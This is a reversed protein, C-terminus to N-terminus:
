IVELICACAAWAHVSAAQITQLLWPVAGRSVGPSELLSLDAESQGQPCPQTDPSAPKFSQTPDRASAALLAAGQRGAGEANCPLPAEGEKHTRQSPGGGAQWGVDRSGQRRKLGRRGQPGNTKGQAAALDKEKIPRTHNGPSHSSPPHSVPSPHIFWPRDRRVRLPPSPYPGAQPPPPPSPPHSSLAPSAKTSEAAARPESGRSSNAQLGM